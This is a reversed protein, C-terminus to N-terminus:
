KKEPERLADEAQKGAEEIATVHAKEVEMAKNYVEQLVNFDALDLGGGTAKWWEPTETLRASLTGIITASVIAETSAGLGDGGLLDRKMRDSMLKERFSLVPKARFDGVWLKGSTDGVLHISFLTGEPTKAQAM